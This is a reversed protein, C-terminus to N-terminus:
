KVVSVSILHTYLVSYKADQHIVSVYSMQAMNQVPNERFVVSVCGLGGM